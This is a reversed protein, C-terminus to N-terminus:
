LFLPRFIGIKDRRENALTMNTQVKRNQRLSHPKEEVASVSRWVMTDAATLDAWVPLGVTIVFFTKLLASFAGTPWDDVPEKGLGHAVM